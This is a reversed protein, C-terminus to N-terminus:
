TCLFHSPLWLQRVSLLWFLPGPVCLFLLLKPAGNHSHQITHPRM